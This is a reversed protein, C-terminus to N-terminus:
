RANLLAAVCVDHHPGEVPVPACSLRNLLTPVEPPSTALQSAMAPADNLHRVRPQACIAAQAQPFPIPPAAICGTRPM